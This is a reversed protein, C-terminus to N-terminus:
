PQRNGFPGSDNNTQGSGPPGFRVRNEQNIFSATTGVVRDSAQLESSDVVVWEGQRTGVTVSIPTPAGNRLVM